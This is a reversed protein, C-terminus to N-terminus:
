GGRGKFFYVPPDSDAVFDLLLAFPSRHHARDFRGLYNHRRASLSLRHSDPVFNRGKAMLTRLPPRTAERCACSALILCPYIGASSLMERLATLQPQVDAVAGAAAARAAMAHPNDAIIQARMMLSDMASAVATQAAALQPSSSLVQAPSILPVGIGRKLHIHGGDKWGRNM